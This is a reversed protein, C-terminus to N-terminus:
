LLIKFRNKLKMSRCIYAQIQTAQRAITEELTKIKLESMKKESENDRKLLLIEHSLRQETQKISDATVKDIEKKLRVPFEEVTKHLLDIEEEQAKLSSERTQWSKELGEQSERNQKERLRMEEEYRDQAKKRELSKKYEYEDIERQRIKKLNDEYEKTERVKAQHELEWQQRTTEIESELKEKQQTYEEILQDLATQTVDLKHLKELEKTRM